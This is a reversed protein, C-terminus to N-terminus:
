CTNRTLRYVYFLGKKGCVKRLDCSFKSCNKEGPVKMCLYAFNSETTIIM